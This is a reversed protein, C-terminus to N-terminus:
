DDCDGGGLFRAYGDGDRDFARRLARTIPGGLGTYAANAKVVAASGGTALVLGLLAFPLAAWAARRPWRGTGDLAAVAARAPRVAALSLAIAVAIAIPGRLPLQ